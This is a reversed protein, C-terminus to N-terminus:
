LNQIIHNMERYTGVLNGCQKKLRNLYYDIREKPVGENRLQSRFWAELETFEFKDPTPLVTFGELPKKGVNAWVLVFCRSQNALFPIVRESLETWFSKALLKMNKQPIDFNWVILMIDTNVQYGFVNTLCDYEYKNLFDREIDQHNIITSRYLQVDFRETHRQTTQNLERRIREIIYQELLLVDGGVSFAFAGEYKIQKSFKLILEKLDFNIIINRDIKASPQIGIAPSTNQRAQALKDTIINRKQNHYNNHYNDKWDEYKKIVDQIFVKEEEILQFLFNFLIINDLFVILGLKNDGNVEIYVKSLLNCLNPIYFRLKKDLEVSNCHQYLGCNELFDRRSTADTAQLYNNNILIQQLQSREM